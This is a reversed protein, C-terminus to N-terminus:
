YQFFVWVLGALISDQAKAPITFERMANEKSVPMWLIGGSEVSINYTKPMTVFLM